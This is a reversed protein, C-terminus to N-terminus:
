LCGGLVGPFTFLTDASAPNLPRMYKPSDSHHLEGIRQQATVVTHWAHTCKGKQKRGPRRGQTTSTTCTVERRGLDVGKVSVRAVMLQHQAIATLADAVPAVYPSVTPQGFEGLSICQRCANWGVVGGRGPEMM